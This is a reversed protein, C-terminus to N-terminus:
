IGTNDNKLYACSLLKFIIGKVCTAIIEFLVVENIIWLLELLVTAFTDILIIVNYLFDYYHNILHYM